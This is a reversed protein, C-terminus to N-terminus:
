KSFKYAIFNSLELVKSFFFCVARNLSNTQTHLKLNHGKDWGSFCPISPRPKPFHHLGIRLYSHLFHHETFSPFWFGPVDELQIFLSSSYLGLVKWFYFHLGATLLPTFHCTSNPLINPPLHSHPFTCLHVSRSVLRYGCGPSDWVQEHQVLPRTSRWFGGGSIFKLLFWFVLIWVLWVFFRIM